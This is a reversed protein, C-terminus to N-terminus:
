CAAELGHARNEERLTELSEMVGDVHWWNRTIADPRVMLLMEAAEWGPPPTVDQYVAGCNFCAACRWEPDYSPFDGCTCPLKWAGQRIEPGIPPMARHVEPWKVFPRELALSRFHQLCKGVYLSASTVNYAELPRGIRLYTFM